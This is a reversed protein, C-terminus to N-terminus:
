LWSVSMFDCWTCLYPSRFVEGVSLESYIAVWSDPANLYGKLIVEQCIQIGLSPLNPLGVRSAVKLAAPSLVDFQGPSTSGPAANGAKACAILMSADFLFSGFCSQPRPQQMSASVTPSSM